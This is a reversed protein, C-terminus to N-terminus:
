LSFFSNFKKFANSVWKSCFIILISNLSLSLIEDRILLIFHPFFINESKLWFYVCILHQYGCGDINIRSWFPIHKLIVVEGHPSSKYIYEELDSIFLNNPHPCSLPQLSDFLYKFSILNVSSFVALSHHSFVPFWSLIDPNATSSVPLSIINLINPKLEFHISLFDLWLNPHRKFILGINSWKHIFNLSM